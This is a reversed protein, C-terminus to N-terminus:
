ESRPAPMFTFAIFRRHRDITENPAAVNKAAAPGAAPEAWACDAKNPIKSTLVTGGDTHAIEESQGSSQTARTLLEAPHCDTAASSEPLQFSETYRPAHARDDYGASGDVHTLPPGSVTRDCVNVKSAVLKVPVTSVTRPSRHPPGGTISWAGTLRVL